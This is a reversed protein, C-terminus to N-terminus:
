LNPAHAQLERFETLIGRLAAHFAEVQSAVSARQPTEFTIEFPAQAQDVPARLVGDYCSSLVGGRAHFGDIQPDLNRPLFREAARLAPELLNASLVTSTQRGSLFGYLGHSTDDCHLSLIGHFQHQLLELELLRVEPESSDRWFERNLDPGGRAHRTADEFGTPNCIPYAQIVFGQALHPDQILGQLFRVLGLGSEPEDGHITAFIGIRQVEGGGRPGVFQFRPLEHVTGAREFRLGPQRVLRSTTANAAIPELLDAVLRRSPIARASNMTLERFSNQSGVFFPTERTTPWDLTSPSM